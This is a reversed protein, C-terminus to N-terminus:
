LTSILNLTRGSPVRHIEPFPVSVLVPDDTLDGDVRQALLKAAAAGAQAWPTRLSTVATGRLEPLQEFGVMEPWRAVPVGAERLVSRLGIVAHDDVGVVATVEPLHPLLNRAADEGAGVGGNDVHAPRVVVRDVDPCHQLMAEKWGRERDRAWAPRHWGRESHLALFAIARHGLDVLIETARRGGDVNAFDVTDVDWPEGEDSVGRIRHIGRAPSSPSLAFPYWAFLGQIRPDSCVHDVDDEEVAMTRFLLTSATEEFGSLLMELHRRHDSAFRRPFVFLLTEDRHRSGAAFMGKGPISVITGAEVFDQLVAHVQPLSIGFQVSLQRVSPIRANAVSRRLVDTVHQVLLGRQFEAQQRSAM